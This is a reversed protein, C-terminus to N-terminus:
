KFPHTKQALGIEDRSLVHIYWDLQGAEHLDDSVQKSIDL